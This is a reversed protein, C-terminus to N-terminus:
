ACLQRKKGREIRNEVAEARSREQDAVGEDAGALDGGVARRHDRGEQKEM